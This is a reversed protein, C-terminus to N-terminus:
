NNEAGQSAWVKIVDIAPVLVDDVMLMQSGFATISSHISFVRSSAPTVTDINASLKEYTREDTWTGHCNKCFPLITQSFSVIVDEPVEEKEFTYNECSSILLGGAIILAPMVLRFIRLKRKMKM